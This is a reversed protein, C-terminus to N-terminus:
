KKASNATSWSHELASWDPQPLKKSWKEIREGKVSMWKATHSHTAEMMDAYFWDDSDCDTWTMLESKELLYDEHPNRGLARNVIVCAQARTIYANPRYTGDEFGQVLGAAAAGEVYSCYWADAAVDSFTGQYSKESAKFYGLAIKAFQARTIKANPRFTGDQYGDIIGMNALTSIANNCWLDASCDSFDNTQSWYKTRDSNSLLRFFITAVQGRTIGDYPKLSGDAYGTLYSTHREAGGGGGGTPTKSGSERESFKFDIYMKVYAKDSGAGSGSGAGGEDEGEVALNVVFSYGKYSASYSRAWPGFKYCPNGDDDLASWAGIKTNPGDAAIRKLAKSSLEFFTFYIDDADDLDEEAINMGLKSAMTKFTTTESLNLKEVAQVFQEITVEDFATKFETANKANVAEVFADKNIGANALIIALVNANLNMSLSPRIKGNVEISKTKSDYELYEEAIDIDVSASKVIKALAGVMDQLEDMYAGEVFKLSVNVTEVKDAATVGVEMYDAENHKVNLAWPQVSLAYTAVAKNDKLATSITAFDLLDDLVDNVFGELGNLKLMRLLKNATAATGDAKFDAYLGVLDEFADISYITKENLSLAAATYYNLMLDSAMDLALWAAQTPEESYASYLDLLKESPIVNFTINGKTDVDITYLENQVIDDKEVYGVRLMNAPVTFGTYKGAAIIANGSVTGTVTGCDATGMKSDVIILRDGAIINGNVEYGNLDLIATSTKSFDLDGTINKQLMVAAYGTISKLRSAVDATCDVVNAKNMYGPAKVANVDVVIAEYNTDIYSDEDKDAFNAITVTVPVTLGAGEGGKYEQIMNLLIGMDGVAKDAVMKIGEASLTLDLSSHGMVFTGQEKDGEPAVYGNVVASVAGLLDLYSQSIVGEQGLMKLTNAYTTGSVDEGLLVNICDKLFEHAVKEEVANIDDKEVNGTALLAALYVEYIKEPMNLKVALVGNDAEFTLYSEYKELAAALSKLQSPANAMEIVLGLDQEIKGDKKLQISTKILEGGNKGLEIITDQDFDESNLVADILTQLYIGDDKLPQKNLSIASYKSQVVAMAFPMMDQISNMTVTLIGDELAGGPLADVFENLREAVEDIKKFEVVYIGDEFYNRLDDATFRVTKGEEVKSDKVTFEYYCNPEDCEPLVITMRNSNFPFSLSDLEEEGEFQVTYTKPTVDYGWGIYSAEDFDAVTLNDLEETTYGNDYFEEVGNLQADLLAQVQAKLNAVAADLKAENVEEGLKEIYTYDKGDLYITIGVKKESTYEVTFQHVAIVDESGYENVTGYANELAAVMEAFNSSDLDIVEHPDTLGQEVAAVSDAITDFKGVKEDADDVKADFDAGLSLNQLQAILAIVGEKNDVIDNLVASLGRVEKQLANCNEYYYIMRDPDYTAPRAYDDTQAYDEIMGCITLNDGDMHFESLVELADVFGQIDYSGGMMPLLQLLLSITASDLGVLTNYRMALSDMQDRQIEYDEVLEVPLNMISLIDSIFSNKVQLQYYVTMENSLPSVDGTYAGNNYDFGREGTGDDYSVPVWTGYNSDWEAEYAEVTWEETDVAVNDENPYVLGQEVEIEYDGKLAGSQLVAAEEETSYNEAVFDFMSIYEVASAPIVMASVMLVLAMAMATWRKIQKSFKM